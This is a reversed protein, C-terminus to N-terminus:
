PRRTNADVKAARNPSDRHVLDQLTGECISADRLAFHGFTQTNVRLRHPAPEFPPMRIRPMSNLKGLKDTNIFIYNPSEIHRRSRRTRSNNLDFRGVHVPRSYRLIDPTPQELLRILFDADKHIRSQEKSFIDLDKTRKCIPRTSSNAHSDQKTVWTTWMNRGATCVLAHIVRHRGLNPVHKHQIPLEPINLANFNPQM